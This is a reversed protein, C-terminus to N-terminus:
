EYRISDVPNALATKVVQFIITLLALIFTFTVTAVVLGADLTTRHVFLNLFINTLFFAAPVAILNAVLIIRMFRMSLMGMVSPTSAGLVKRIGIEKKRQELLLSALGFLGLCSIFVALFAFSTFIQNMIKLPSYIFEFWEDLFRYEFPFAPSVESFVKEIHALSGQIDEPGIKILLDYYWSPRIGMVLPSIEFILPKTNFDKVVGIIKGERGALVVKKGIPDEMGMFRVASENVVYAETADTLYEESFDRGQVIELDFTEAYDHDVYLFNLEVEKDTDMGQWEFNNVNFLFHPPASAYTVNLIRPDRLLREKFAKHADRMQDNVQIHVIQERSFGLEKNKIHQIQKYAVLTLIILMVSVAFQSVVLIARFLSGKRGRSTDRKLVKLPQFASLFFAPYSGAFFGTLIAALALSLYILMNGSELLSMEKGQLKNFIPLFLDVITIALFFAILSLFISEGLFQKIIDARKAGVVKRMGVELARIGSRATTINMFNVCAIALILVAVLAFILVLRIDSRGGHVINLHAERVPQLSVLYNDEPHHKLIAGSIKRSVDEVSIGDQLTVYGVAERWWSSLREADYLQLSAMFDFQLHSNYPVKKIIGTVELKRDNNWLFVKGMPDEDGFYKNAAEQTIVVSNTHPLATQPDGATFEYSFMTFFSPDALFFRQEYFTIDNHRVASPYGHTRVRTVEVIEPYENKLIQPLIYPTSPVGVDGPNDAQKLIIRCLRDSNTHFTDYHLEDYVWIFILIFCAMGVTLGAVNILAYGKYKLIHRFAVKFYNKLM